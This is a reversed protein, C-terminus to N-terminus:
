ELALIAATLKDVEKDIAKLKEILGARRTTMHAIAIVVHRNPKAPAPTLELEKTM